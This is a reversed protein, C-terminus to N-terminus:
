AAVEDMRRLQGLLPLLPMGMITFHDGAVREFLQVGAGEIQYAGVCGFIGSGAADLYREIDADSLDRMTLAASEVTRWRLDDGVAVAVAAHLWHTRGSLTRLTERAGERSGPKSLIDDGTSLIQDSGIVIAGPHAAAVSLAKTEALVVAIQPHPASAIMVDRVSDEDIDAPVVDFALGANLLMQRRAASGSALILLRGSM